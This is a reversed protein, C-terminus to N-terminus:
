KSQAAKRTTARKAVAAKAKQETAAQAELKKILELEQATYARGDDDVEGAAAKRNYQNLRDTANRLDTYGGELMQPLPSGDACFLLPVPTGGRIYLIMRGDALEGLEHTEKARQKAQELTIM